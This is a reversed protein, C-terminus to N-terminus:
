FDFAWTCFTQTLKEFTVFSTPICSRHKAMLDEMWKGSIPSQVAIVTNNEKSHLPSDEGM